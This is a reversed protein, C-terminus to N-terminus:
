RRCMSPPSGPRAVSRFCRLLAHMDGAHGDGAGPWAAPRGGHQRAHDLEPLADLAQAEGAAPDDVGERAALGHEIRQHEERGQGAHGLADLEAGAHHLHRQAVGDLQRV